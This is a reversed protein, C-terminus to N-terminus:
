VLTNRASEIGPCMKPGFSFPRLRSSRYLVMSVRLPSQADSRVPRCVNCITNHSLCYHLYRYYRNLALIEFILGQTKEKIDRLLHALDTPRLTQLQLIRGYDREDNAHYKGDEYENDILNEFRQEPENEV